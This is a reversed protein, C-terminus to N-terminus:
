LRSASQETEANAMPMAPLGASAIAAGCGTRKTQTRPVFASLQESPGVIAFATEARRPSFTKESAACILMSPNM